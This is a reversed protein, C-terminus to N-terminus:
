EAGIQSPTLGQRVLTIEPGKRHLPMRHGLYSGDDADFWFSFSPLLRSAFWAVTKGLDPGYRIELIRRGDRKLLPRRQFRFNCRFVGTAAVLGLRAAGLAAGFEGQIPLDLPLDLVTSPPPRSPASPPSTEHEELTQRMVQLLATMSSHSMPDSHDRGGYRHYVAGNAHMLLVAFTLDYDFRYRHRDVNMM